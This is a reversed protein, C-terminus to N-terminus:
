LFAVRKGGADRVAIAASFNVSSRSDERQRERRLLLLPTDVATLLYRERSVSVERRREEGRL